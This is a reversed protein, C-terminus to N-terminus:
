ASVGMDASCGREIVRLRASRSPPNGRREEAGATVPKKTVLRLGGNETDANGAAAKFCHKVERDEGSHFSIVGLRGGAKLSALASELLPPLLELERNVAIRLAQFTRTAPHLPGRRYRAPVAGRILDALVASSLLPAKKREACIAAAIQRSFREGGYRYLLDALDRRSASAIIDAATRGRSTDIRMDLFEDKLFSFGRGSAEYHYRSVGLDILVTDYKAAKEAFFDESWGSYYTVRGAFEALRARAREQIAADADVGVLRLTPFRSLFAFAHGGEGLTADVMLEDAGRPALARVTEELLVPTHIAEVNKSTGEGKTKAM